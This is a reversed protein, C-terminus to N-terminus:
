HAPPNDLCITYVVITDETSNNKFQVRWADQPNPTFPQSSVLVTGTDINAFSGGVLMDGTDCYKGGAYCLDGSPCTGSVNASGDTTVELVYTKLPSSAFSTSDRGDLTQADGGSVDDPDCVVTGDANIAQITSGTVCAESVRKQLESSDLGDLKDVDLNTAKGAGASVTIPKAGAGVVIAVGQGDGSNQVYLTSSPNAASSFLSLARGGGTNNFAVLRDAVAGGLTTAVNSANAVGLVFNDGAAGAAVGATLALLIAVAFATRELRSRM